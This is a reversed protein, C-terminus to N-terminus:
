VSQDFKQGGNLRKARAYAARASAADPAQQALVQGLVQAVFPASWRSGNWRPAAATGSRSLAERPLHRPESQRPEEEPGQGNHLSSSASSKEVRALLLRAGPIAAGVIQPFHTIGSM